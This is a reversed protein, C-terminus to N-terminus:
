AQGVQHIREKGNKERKENRKENREKGKKRKAKVERQTM